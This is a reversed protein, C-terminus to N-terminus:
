FTAMDLNLITMSKKIIPCFWELAFRISVEVNM